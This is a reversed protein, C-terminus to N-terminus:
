KVAFNIGTPVDVFLIRTTRLTIDVGKNTSVATIMNAAFITANAALYLGIFTFVPNSLMATIVFGVASSIMAGITAGSLYCIPAAAIFATWAGFTAVGLMVNLTDNSLYVGGDVYTMEERDLEQFSNPLVLGSRRKLVQLSEM